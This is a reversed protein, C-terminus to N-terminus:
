RMDRPGPGATGDALMELLRDAPAAPAYYWGQASDCGLIRLVAAQHDTEVAEATVTLGLAHALRVLADLIRADRDAPPGERLGALFPGALKLNQIPLTRLYALNSYGTGFDDIAIRVGMAALRRLSPLPRDGADMVASETLELQLLEPPLGTQELIRAVDDVISEDSAQRAALNVSLMLRADPYRRNWLAAQTCAETLVWRGLPVILGTEEALDVFGKPLLTGLEPHRWRVLAEVGTLRGDTLRVMPQYEVVFEGRALAAPMASALAYRAQEREHRVPDFLAWRARGDSKAWYLTVDAAKVLEAATSPAAPEDLVGVSATVVLPIGALQVPEALAALAAEAVAVVDATQAPDEVLIVFEDGGMRAVLHGWRDACKALREAVIVLLEDGVGHGLSDNVMKFGDLDLLCLGVRTDPGAATLVGTLREFFLTRNPLGTVPDHEAQHRLRDALAYTESMDAVMAVTFQPQGAEDRILSVALDTRMVTGDKRFYRKEVRVHDRLGGLLDSYLEWMGSIDEPHMVLDDVNIQLLEEATYGFMDCFAQNVELIRGDISGIGIGIAAGAFVARFRKESARLAQEIQKRADLVAMSLREQEALTRQRLAAVYGAALGGQIGALREAADPGPAPFHHLFDTGLLSLTRDLLSPDTLHADVLAVGVDYAPTTPPGDATLAAHLRLTLGYLLRQTDEPSLPLYGNAGAAAAAWARAYAAAGAQTQEPGTV